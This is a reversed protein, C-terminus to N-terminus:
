VHDLRRPSRQAADSTDTEPVPEDCERARSGRIVRMTHFCRGVVNETKRNTRTAKGRKVAGLFVQLGQGLIVLDLLMQVTVFLRATESQASIEGFGVTAFITVTLYLADSRSLTETFTATDHASLIYYIAAFLLLFLPTTM